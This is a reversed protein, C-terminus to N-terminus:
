GRLKWDLWNFSVKSTLNYTFTFKDRHKVLCWEMFVYSPSSTHAWANKVEANSPPLHDAEGVPRKVGLFSDGTGMPCSAPHTGFNM